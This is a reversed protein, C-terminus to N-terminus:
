PLTKFSGQPQEPKGYYVFTAKKAMTELERM